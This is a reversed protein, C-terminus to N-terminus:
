ELTMTSGPLTGYLNVFHAVAVKFHQKISGGEGGGWHLV